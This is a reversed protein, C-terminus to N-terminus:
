FQWFARLERLPEKQSFRAGARPSIAYHKRGPAGPRRNKPLFAARKRTLGTDLVRKLNLIDDRFRNQAVPSFESRELADAISQYAPPLDSIQFRAVSIQFIM